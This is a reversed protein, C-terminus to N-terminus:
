NLNDIYQEIRKNLSYPQYSLYKNARSIDFSFSNPGKNRNVSVDGKGIIKVIMKALDILKIPNGGGIHFVRFAKKRELYKLASLNGNIVDNVHVFDKIIEGKGYISISNGMIANTAYYHISGYNYGNGFVGPYRLILANLHNKKVMKEIYYESMLKTMGYIGSPVPIIKENVPLKKLVQGYVSMTSSYIFPIDYKKIDNVINVTSYYNSKLHDEFTKSNDDSIEAAMHFIGDIKGIKKLIPKFSNKKSLDISIHTYLKSDHKFNKSRSIGVVEHGSLILNEKLHSGIFGSVGTVVYKM